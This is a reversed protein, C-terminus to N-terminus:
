TSGTCHGLYGIGLGIAAGIIIGIIKKWSM